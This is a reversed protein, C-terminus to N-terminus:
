SNVAHITEHIFRLKEIAPASVVFPYGDSLGLGRNLNNLVHTLPFWAAIMQDFTADKNRFIDGSNPLLPEDARRPQLALGCAAATELTDVMHLYHAWSEAWDEWPHASAYPTILRSQWDPPAGVEYHRKLAEGYDAREDGFLARFAELRNSGDILRDWYYHGVEHRFHGLLTRYPEGLSHRRREREADDAEALNITILGNAHGTLVPDKTPYDPSALFEFALGDVPDEMKSTLPLRLEMLSYILRRKAVELKAWAQRHGFRTLDPIVHTLRCSRCYMDPDEAPLAWNCVSEVAYNQCLRYTRGQAYPHASSWLGNGLSDLSGMEGLDPLFALTRGCNVCLTNEFYVLQQCHDCHFIKM